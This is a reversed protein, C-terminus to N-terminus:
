ELPDQNLYEKLFARFTKKSKKEPIIVKDIGKEFADRIRSACNDYFFDYLYERNQPLYNKELYIFLNQKQERNILLKQESVARNEYVYVRLFPNYSSKSLSYMLKRQIFRLVFNPTSFDFTGFNYVFDLRLNPDRLRIASHGFLNYIEDGPSCTILSFEADESLEPLNLNQSTLIQANFILNILIIICATRKM